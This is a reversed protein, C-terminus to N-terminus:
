FVLKEKILFVTTTGSIENAVVLLPKHIPSKWWPIFLLGEPGLDGATGAEPDGAFNRNNVYTVFEPEEPDSVDFVMVGGVRELGIFAFKQNWLGAVLVGEPEPGKNDSRNDFNNATNNSNFFAPLEVKTIQELQDGSDFVLKGWENWISFSRAGFAYLEDYDGDNDPDGNVSTVALNGLQSNAKYLSDPLKTQELMLNKVQVEEQLGPDWDRADGENATILYTRGHVNFHAIGDPQYMGLVPWNAIIAGGDANSPDLGNGAQNHDKFGLGVLKEIKADQIDLIAMANNEQLTVWATSSDDSVTIYEPELDQAVTANPGFIRISPDLPIDNFKEFGVTRVHTHFLHKHFRWLSIISVSGPPDISYDDNPEGENATLVRRGDTTFTIMDPLAGVTVAKLFNGDTDFFVAKGPDTKVNAEVSVAVLGRDVDVSTPGAGFAALDISFLLKSPDLNTPDAFDVVDVKNTAGNIIFLRQTESDHAVIESASEEFVDGPARYTGLLELEVTIEKKKWWHANAPLSALTTAAAM